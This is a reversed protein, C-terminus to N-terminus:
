LKALRRHLYCVVWVGICEHDATEKQTAIAGGEYESEWGPYLVNGHWSHIYEHNGLATGTRLLNAGLTHPLDDCITFSNRLYHDKQHSSTLLYLEAYGMKVFFEEMLPILMASQGRGRQLKDVCLSEAYLARERNIVPILRFHGVLTDKDHTDDSHRVLGYSCPATTLEQKVLKPLLEAKCQPWENKLTKICAPILDPISHLPKLSYSSAM